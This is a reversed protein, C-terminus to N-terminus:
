FFFFILSLILNIISLKDEKQKFIDPSKIVQKKANNRMLEERRRKEEEIEREKREKEKIRQIEELDKLQRIRKTIFKKFQADNQVMSVFEKYSIAKDDNEDIFSFIHQIQIETFTLAAEQMCKHFEQVTIKGDKNLDIMNFIDGLSRKSSGIKMRLHKIFSRPDFGILKIDEAKIDRYKM